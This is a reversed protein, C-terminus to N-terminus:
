RCARRRGADAPVLDVLPDLGRADGVDHFVVAQAHHAVIVAAHEVDVGVEGLLAGAEAAVDLDDLHIFQGRQAALHRRRFDRVADRM